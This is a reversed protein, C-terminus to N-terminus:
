FSCKGLSFQVVLRAYRPGLFESSVSDFFPLFVTTRFHTPQPSYHEYLLVKTMSHVAILARFTEAM